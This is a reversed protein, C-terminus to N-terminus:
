AKGETEAEERANDMEANWLLNRAQALYVQCLAGSYDMLVREVMARAEGIVESTKKAPDRQTLEIPETKATAKAHRGDRAAAAHKGSRNTRITDHANM